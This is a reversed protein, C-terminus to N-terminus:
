SGLLATLEAVDSLGELNSVKDIIANQRQGDELLETNMKFNTIVEEWNVHKEPAGKPADIRLKHKRGDTLVVEVV